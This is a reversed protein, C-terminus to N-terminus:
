KNYAIYLFSEDMRKAAYAILATTKGTGVYANIKMTQRNKTQTPSLMKVALVFIIFTYMSNELKRSVKKKREFFFSFFFNRFAITIYVM